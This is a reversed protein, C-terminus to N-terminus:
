LFDVHVNAFEASGEPCALTIALDSAWVSGCAAIAHEEARVPLVTCELLESGPSELWAAMHSEGRPRETMALPPSELWAAVRREGRPRETTALPKLWEALAERTNRGKPGVEVGASVGGCSWVCPTPGLPWSNL